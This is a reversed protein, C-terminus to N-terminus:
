IKTPTEFAYPEALNAFYELHPAALGVHFGTAQRVTAGNALIELEIIEELHEGLKVSLDRLVAARDAPTARSWDGADFAKRASEVAQDIHSEDGCAVTAAVEGTSPNIIELQEASEVEQGGIIMPHHHISM